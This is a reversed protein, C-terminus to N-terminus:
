AVPTRQFVLSRGAERFGLRAYWSIPWDDADAVLVIDGADRQAAEAIARRVVAGSLGQRRHAELTDVADIEFMGDYSLLLCRSVPSAPPAVVVRAGAARALRREREVFQDVLSGGTAWPQEAVVARTLDVHADIDVVAASPEDAQEAALTDPQAPDRLVMTVLREETYSAALLPERLPVALSPDDIEIRRHDWGATDAVKEMSRLLLHPPVAATISMVNLDFVAPLDDTIVCIAFPLDLRQTVMALRARHQAGLLQRHVDAGGVM